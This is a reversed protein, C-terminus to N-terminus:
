WRNGGLEGKRWLEGLTYKQLWEALAAANLRQMRTAGDQKECVLVAEPVDSLADVLADSHTTVILQAKHSATIMLQAVTPLIDPHLATEPEEICILPPPDPHCLISLLCLFRLTGDSLRTAPVPQALREEHLYAQVTGGQIKVSYDRISPSFLRLNELLQQRTGERHELDNLM